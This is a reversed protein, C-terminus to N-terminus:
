HKHDATTVMKRPLAQQRKGEGGHSKSVLYSALSTKQLIQNVDRCTRLTFAETLSNRIESATMEFVRTFFLLAQLYHLYYKYLKYYLHTLIQIQFTWSIWRYENLLAFYQRSTTM